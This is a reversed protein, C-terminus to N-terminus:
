GPDEQLHLDVSIQAAMAANSASMTAFLEIKFFPVLPIGMRLETDRGLVPASTSQTMSVALEDTQTRTFEAPDLPSPFTPVARVKISQGAASLKNDHVRVLLRASTYGVVEVARQLVVTETGSGALYSFDFSEKRLIPILTGSM